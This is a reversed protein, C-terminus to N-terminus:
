RETKLLHECYKSQSGCLSVFGYFTVTHARFHELFLVVYCFINRWCSSISFNAAVSLLILPELRLVPFLHDWFLLMNTKCVFSIVTPPPAVLNQASVKHLIVKWEWFWMENGPSPVTRGEYFAHDKINLCLLLFVSNRLMEYGVGLLVLLGRGEHKSLYPSHYSTTNWVCYM